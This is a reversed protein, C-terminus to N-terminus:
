GWGGGKRRWFCHRPKSQRLKGEAEVFREFAQCYVALAADDGQTLVGMRALVETKRQWEARPTTGLYEPPDLAVVEPHPERPNTRCPRATGKLVKLRTPLPKRGAM